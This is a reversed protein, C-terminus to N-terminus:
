LVNSLVTNPTPTIGISAASVHVIGVPTVNEGDLIRYGSENLHWKVQSSCFKSPSRKEIRTRFMSLQIARLEASSAYLTWQITRQAHGSTLQKWSTNTSHRSVM